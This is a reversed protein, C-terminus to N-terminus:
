NIRQYEGQRDWKRLNNGCLIALKTECCQCLEDSPIIRKVINKNKINTIIM